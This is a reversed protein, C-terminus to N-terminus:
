APFLGPRGVPAFSFRHWTCPGHRELARLHEETGYGKHREFGYHPFEEALRVMFRDRTTKALISAAAIALSTRDGGVVTQQTWPAGPIADNGDVLVLLRGAEAGAPGLRLVARGVARRMAAHTARRIDIADVTRSSVFAVGWALATRRIAEAERERAAASLAKSDRVGPLEVVAPLVVAAAVLPGAISGRGVEDVGALAGFGGARSSADFLALPSDLASV